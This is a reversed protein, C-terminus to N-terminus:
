EVKTVLPLQDFVIPGRVELVFTVGISMDRRFNWFTSYNEEVAWKMLMWTPGAVKRKYRVLYVADHLLKTTDIESMPAETPTLKAIVQDWTNVLTKKYINQDPRNDCEEAKRQKAWALLEALVIERETM